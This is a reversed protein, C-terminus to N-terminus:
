FQLFSAYFIFRYDLKLNRVSAFVFYYLCITPALCLATAFVLSACALQASSFGGARRDATPAVSDVRERLPNWKRGLLLRTLSGLVVLEIRYM